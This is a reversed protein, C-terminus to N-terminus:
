RLSLSAIKKRKKCNKKTENQITKMVTDELKSVKEKVIESSGNARGLTNKMRSMTKM